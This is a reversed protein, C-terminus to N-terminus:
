TYNDPLDNEFLVVDGAKTLNPLLTSAQKLSEAELIDEENFGAQLLGQKISELNVKNVIIVKNCVKAINEGFQVNVEREKLGMEVIGPTVIIKNGDFLSLTELSAKSSEVSSNYSNDIITLGNNNVIEMRHAMPKLEEIASKIDQLSVDLKYAM